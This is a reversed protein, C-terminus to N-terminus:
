LVFIVSASSSEVLVSGTMTSSGATTVGGALSGSGVDGGANEGTGSVSELGVCLVGTSACGTLVWGALGTVSSAGDVVAATWGLASTAFALVDIAVVAATSFDAVDTADADTGSTVNAACAAGV